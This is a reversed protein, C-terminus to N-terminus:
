CSLLACSSTLEGLLWSRQCVHADDTYAVSPTCLSHRVVFHMTSSWVSCVNVSQSDDALSTFTLRESSSVWRIMTSIHRCKSKYVVPDWGNCLLFVVMYVRGYWGLDLGLNTELGDTELGLGCEQCSPYPVKYLLSRIPQNISQNARRDVPLHSM